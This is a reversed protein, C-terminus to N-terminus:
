KKKIKPKFFLVIALLILFSGFVIQLVSPHIKKSLYSGLFAMPPLILFVYWTKKFNILKNKFHLALVILGSVLFTFVNIAQSLHQSLGSALVLLPILATGGGLGAGGLLGGLLGSLILLFIQM